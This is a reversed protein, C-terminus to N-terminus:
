SPATWPATSVRPAARDLLLHRAAAPCLLRGATRTATASAAGSGYPAGDPVVGNTPDFPYPAPAPTGRVLAGALKAIEDHMLVSSMRGFQTNGGEYHQKEYEEPTTFYLVFENALGSLVVKEVGSGAVAAGAATRIREGVEKTGEGPLSVIMRRGVRVAMLPVANPVGGGVGPPFIKRGHPDVGAPARRGEFHEGTVDFLPGREEESGTLFPLGVQSEDAM